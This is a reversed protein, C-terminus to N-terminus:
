MQAIRALYELAARDEVQEREINAVTRLVKRRYEPAKSALNPGRGVKAELEFRERLKPDRLLDPHMLKLARKRGTSLQEVQYVTGMGGASLEREIRFDSAFLTGAPLM